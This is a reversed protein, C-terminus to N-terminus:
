PTVKPIVVKAGTAPHTVFDFPAAYVASLVEPTMFRKPAGDFIAQGAKLAIIRRCSLAAHNLDHTVQLITKRHRRNLKDLLLHIDSKHKVDLFATAEDLLLIPTEQTLAAAILVKQAEGGSLQNAPRKALHSIETDRLAREVASEDEPRRGSWGDLYPYRALRLYELVTFPIREFHAQPVYAIFRALTRRDIGSLPRGMVSVAGSSAKVLRAMARLLTSKGSGNAGVIALHEGKHVSLSIGKLVPRHGLDLRLDTITLIPAVSSEM